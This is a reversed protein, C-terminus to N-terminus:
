KSVSAISEAIRMRSQLFLLECQDSHGWMHDWRSLIKGRTHGQGGEVGDFFDGIGLLIAVSSTDLVQSIILADDISFPATNLPNSKNKGHEEM